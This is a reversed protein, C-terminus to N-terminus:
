WSVSVNVTFQVTHSAGYDISVSVKLSINSTKNKLMKYRYSSDPTFRKM